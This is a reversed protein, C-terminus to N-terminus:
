KNLPAQYSPNPSVPHADNNESGVFVDYEPNEYSSTDSSIDSALAKIYEESIVIKVLIMM